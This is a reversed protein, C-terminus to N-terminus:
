RVKIVASIKRQQLITKRRIVDDQWKDWDVNEQGSSSDQPEVTTSRIEHSDSSQIPIVHAPDSSITTKKSGCTTVEKSDKTGCRDGSLNDNVDNRQGLTFSVKDNISKQFDCQGGTKSIMERKQDGIQKLTDCTDVNERVTDKNDNKDQVNSDQIGIHTETNEDDLKSLTVCSHSETQTVTNSVVEENKMVTDCNQDVVHTVSDENNQRETDFKVAENHTEIKSSTETCQDGFQRVTDVGETDSNTEMKM